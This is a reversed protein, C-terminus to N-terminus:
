RSSARKIFVSEIEKEDIPEGLIYNVYRRAELDIHSDVTSLAPVSYQGLLINDFGIIKVDRGAKVGRDRLAKIAGLAMMDNMCFLGGIKGKKEILEAGAIYGADMASIKPYDGWIITNKANEIGNEEMLALYTVIRNDASFSKGAGCIFYLGDARKDKIEAFAKEMAPRYNIKVKVPDENIGPHVVKINACRIKKLDAETMPEFALNIIAAVRNQIVKDLVKSFNSKNVRYISITYDYDELETVMRNFMELYYYNSMDPVLMAIFDCNKNSSINVAIKNHTYGCEAIVSLIKERTKESVSESGNLVRTVTTKSVGAMEAISKRSVNKEMQTGKDPNRGSKVSKKGDSRVYIIHLARLYNNRRRFINKQRIRNKPLETHTEFANQIRHRALIICM